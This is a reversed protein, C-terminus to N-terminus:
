GVYFIKDKDREDKPVVLVHITKHPTNTFSEFILYDGDDPRLFKLIQYRKGKHMYSDKFREKCLECELFKWNYSNIYTSEKYHIKGHLWEKLCEYHITRMTGACSCPSLLPNEDDEDANLCIRCVIENKESKSTEPKKM